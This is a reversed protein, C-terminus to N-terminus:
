DKAEHGSIEDTKWALLRNYLSASQDIYIKFPATLLGCLIM